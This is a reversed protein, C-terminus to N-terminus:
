YRARGLAFVSIRCGRFKGMAKMCSLLTAGTTIVDDVLLIHMRYLDHANNVQFINEVNTVRQKSGLSAQHKNNKIRLLHTTDVPIHTVESLGRAIVESQNYGRERLRRPHLPVPMIVDIGEFFGDQQFVEAAEKALEYGIEPRKAFKFSLIIKQEKGGKDFFLYAGGREFHKNGMFLQETSNGRQRSQETFALQKHCAECMYEGKELPTHCAPCQNPYFLDLVGELM